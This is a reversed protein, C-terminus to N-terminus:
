TSYLFVIYIFNLRTCSRKRVERTGQSERHLMRLTGRWIYGRGRRVHSVKANGFYVRNSSRPQRNIDEWPGALILILLLRQGSGSMSRVEPPPCPTTLLARRRVRLSRITDALVLAVCVLAEIQDPRHSISIVICARLISRHEYDPTADMWGVWDEVRGMWGQYGPWNVGAGHWARV